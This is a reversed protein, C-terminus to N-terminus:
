SCRKIFKGYERFTLIVERGKHVVSLGPLLEKEKWFKKTCFFWKYLYVGKWEINVWVMGLGVYHISSIGKSGEYIRTIFKKKGIIGVLMRLNCGEILTSGM